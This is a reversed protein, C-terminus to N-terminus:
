HGRKPPVVAGVSLWGLGFLGCRWHRFSELTDPEDAFVGVRRNLIPDKAESLVQQGEAVLHAQFIGGRLQDLGVPQGRHRQRHEGALAIQDYHHSPVTGQQVRGAPDGVPVHGQQSDIKAAQSKQGVHRGIGHEFAEILDQRAIVFLLPTQQQPGADTGVGIRAFRQQGEVVHHDMLPVDGAHDLELGVHVPAEDVGLTGVPQDDGSGGPGGGISKGTALVLPAKEETRKRTNIIIERPSLLKGTFNAPCADSCRGCETCTYGDLMQKWTLHDVDAAGFQEITEDELDIPKLEFKKTGLKEFYVNPISAFVHLHKSYPLFNMFGFIVLIHTWWFVEYWFTADSNASFFIHSLSASIPRVEWDHLQFNNAAIAAMNQGFMSVVVFLILVLVVTADILSERGHDLRKINLIYRRYLAYLVALGVLVGFIDQTFTILSFVPGLFELTFNSYFGQIIAELVAFIFLLFGWFILVHIIGAVPERLIKSQGIAVKLVNKIRQVINDFRDEKKGISLYGILRKINKGLFLFSAIFVFIFVINKLEM